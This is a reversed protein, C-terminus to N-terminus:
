EPRPLAAGGGGPHADRRRRRRPPRRGDEEHGNQGDDVTREEWRWPQDGYHVCVWRCLTDRFGSGPEVVRSPTLTLSCPTRTPRTMGSWPGAPMKPGDQSATAAVATRRTLRDPHSSPGILRSTTSPPRSGRATAASTDRSMAAPRISATVPQCM